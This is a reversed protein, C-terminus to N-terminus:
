QESQHTATCNPTDANARNEQAAQLSEIGGEAWKEDLRGLCAIGVCLYLHGCLQLSRGLGPGARLWGM